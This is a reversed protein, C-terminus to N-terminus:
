LQVFDIRLGAPTSVSAMRGDGLISRVEGHDAIGAARGRALIPGLDPVVYTVGLIGRAPPAARAHLDRESEAGYDVLALRGYRSDRAGLLRVTGGEDARLEALGLVEQLFASEREVETTVASVEVALGYGRPSVPLLRSGRPALVVQVGDHVELGIEVGERERGPQPPREVVEFGAAELEARRAEIDAVAAHIRVAGPDTAAAGERAVPGPRRFQVLHVGGDILGPTNLLAQGAIADDPLGWVRALGPDPGEERRAVEMGFREQWLALAEQMDAVSVVVYAFARPSPGALSRSREAAAACAVFALCAAAAVSRMMCLIM